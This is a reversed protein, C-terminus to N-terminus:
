HLCTGFPTITATILYVCWGHVSLCVCRWPGGVWVSLCVSLSVCCEYWGQTIVVSVQGGKTAQIGLEERQVLLVRQDGQDLRVQEGPGELLGQGELTAQNGWIVGAEVKVQPGLGALLDM